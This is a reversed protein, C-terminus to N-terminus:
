MRLTRLPLETAVSNRKERLKIFLIEGLTLFCTQRLCLLIIYQVFYRKPAASQM